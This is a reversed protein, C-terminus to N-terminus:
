PQSGDGLIRDASLRARELVFRARGHRGDRILDIADHVAVHLVLDAATARDTTAARAADDQCALPIVRASM